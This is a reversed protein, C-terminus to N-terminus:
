LALSRRLRRARGRFASPAALDVRDRSRSATRAEGRRADPAGARSLGGDQRKRYRRSPGGRSGARLIQARKRPARRSTEPGGDARTPDRTEARFRADRAGGEQRQPSRDGGAPG